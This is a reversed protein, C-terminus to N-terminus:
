SLIDTNQQIRVNPCMTPLSITSQHTSIILRELYVIEDVKLQDEHHWSLEPQLTLLQGSRQIKEVSRELWKWNRSGDIRALEESWTQQQCQVICPASMCIRIGSLWLTVQVPSVTSQNKSISSTFLNYARDKSTTVLTIKYLARRLGWNMIVELGM